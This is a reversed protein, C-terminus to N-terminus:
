NMKAKLGAKPMGKHVLVILIKRRDYPEELFEAIEM